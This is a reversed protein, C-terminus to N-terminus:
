GNSGISGLPVGGTASSVAGTASSVADGVAGTASAIGGEVESSVSSIQDAIDKVPLIKTEDPTIFEALKKEAAPIPDTASGIVFDSAIGRLIKGGIANTLVNAVDKFPNFSTFADLNLSPLSPIIGNLKSTLAKNLDFGEFGMGQIVSSVDIDEGFLEQVRQAQDLFAGADDTLNLLADIETQVSLDAVGELKAKIKDEPAFNNLDLSEGVGAM